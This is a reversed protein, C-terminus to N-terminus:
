CKEEQISVGLETNKLSPKDCMMQRCKLRKKGSHDSKAHCRGMSNMEVNQGCQFSCIFHIAAHPHLHSVLGHWSSGSLRVQSVAQIDSSHIRWREM